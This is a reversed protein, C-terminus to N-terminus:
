VGDGDGVMRVGFRVGFLVVAVGSRLLTRADRGDDDDIM